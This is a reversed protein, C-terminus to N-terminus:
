GPPQPTSLGDCKRRIEVRRELEALVQEDSWDPHQHRIHSRAQDCNEDFLQLGLVAREGFPITKARAIKEREITRILEPTPETM